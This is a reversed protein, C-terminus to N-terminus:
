AREEKLCVILRVPEQQATLVLHSNLTMYPSSSTLPLSRDADTKTQGRRGALHTWGAEKSRWRRPRAKSLSRSSVEIMGPQQQTESTAMKCLSCLELLPLLQPLQLPFPLRRRPAFPSPPPVKAFVPFSFRTGPPLGRSTSPQTCSSRCLAFSPLFPSNLNPDLSDLFLCGAPSPLETVDTM